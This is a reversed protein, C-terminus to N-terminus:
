SVHFNDAVRQLLNIIHSEVTSYDSLEDSQYIFALSLRADTPELAQWLLQKHQRYAERILRKMRNRDVAHKFHRKSVSILVQVPFSQEDDVAQYVARIPYSSVSKSGASFLNEIRRQSCLREAKSFTNGM